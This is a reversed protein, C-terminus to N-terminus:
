IQMRMIDNFASVARDRIAVTIETALQAESTAIMYDSVSNLDGTAAQQSARTVENELGSIKDLADSIAKAFDSGVGNPQTGAVQDTRIPDLATSPTVRKPMMPAIPPITIAM